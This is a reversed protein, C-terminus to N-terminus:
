RYTAARDDDLRIMNRDGAGLNIQIWLGDM